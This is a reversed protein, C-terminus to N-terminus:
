FSSRHQPDVFARALQQSRVDWAPHTLLHILEEAMTLADFASKAAVVTTGWLVTKTHIPMNPDLYNLTGFFLAWARYQLASIMPDTCLKCVCAEIRYASLALKRATPLYLTMDKYAMMIQDGCRIDNITNLTLAMYARPSNLAHEVSRNADYGGIFVWSRSVNPTCSHNVRSAIRFVGYDAHTGEALEFHNAKWIAYLKAYRVALNSMQYELPTLGNLQVNPGPPGPPDEGWIRRCTDLDTAAMYRGVLVYRFTLLTEHKLASDQDYCLKEMETIREDLLGYYDIIKRCFHDIDSDYKPDQAFVPDVWWPDYVALRLRGGPYRPRNNSNTPMTLLPPEVVIRTGQPIHEKAFLGIGMTETQRYELMRDM